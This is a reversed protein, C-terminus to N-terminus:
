RRASQEKLRDQHDMWRPREEPLGQELRDLREKADKYRPSEPHSIRMIHMLQTIRKADARGPVAGDTRGPTAAPPNTIAARLKPPMQALYKQQEEPPLKELAAGLKAVAQPDDAPFTALKQTIESQQQWQTYATRPDRIGSEKWHSVFASYSPQDFSEEGFENTVTFASQLDKPLSTYANSKGSPDLGLAQYQQWKQLDADTDIEKKNRYLDVARRDTRQEDQLAQQRKRYEAPAVRSSFGQEAFLDDVLAKLEQPELSVAADDPRDTRGETLPGFKGDQRRLMPTYRQGKMSPDDMVDAVDIFGALPADSDVLPGRDLLERVEDNENLFRTTRPDQIVEAPDRPSGDENHTLGTWAKHLRGMRDRQATEKDQTLGFQSREIKLDALERTLADNQDARSRQWQRHERDEADLRDRRERNDMYARIAMGTKIGSNIGQIAGLTGYGSM